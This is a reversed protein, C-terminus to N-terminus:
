PEGPDQAFHWAVSDSERGERHAVGCHGQRGASRPLDRQLVPVSWWYVAARPHCDDPRYRAADAGTRLLPGDRDCRRDRHDHLDAASDPRLADADVQEGGDASDGTAAGFEARGTGPGLFGRTRATSRVGPTCCGTGAATRATCGRTGAASRQGSSEAARPRATAAGPARSAAPGAAAARGAAAWLGRA